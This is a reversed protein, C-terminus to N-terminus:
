VNVRRYQKKQRVPKINVQEESINSEVPLLEEATWTQKAGGSYARVYKQELLYENINIEDLTYVNALTRGYKDMNQLEVRVVQDGIMSNLCEMGSICLERESEIQSHLEPADIGALRVNIKIMEDNMEFIITLTDTDCVKIVRAYTDIGDFSFRKITSCDLEQLKEILEM